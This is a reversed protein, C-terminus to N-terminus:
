APEKEDAWKEQRDYMGCDHCLWTTAITPRGQRVDRETVGEGNPHRCWLRPWRM